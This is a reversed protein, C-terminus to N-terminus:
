QLGQYAIIWVWCVPHLMIGMFVEFISENEVYRKEDTMNKIQLESAVMMMCPDTGVAGDKLFILGM